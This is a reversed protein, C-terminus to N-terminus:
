ATSANETKKDTKVEKKESPKEGNDKGKDKGKDKYDTVYWGNGKLHFSNLSMLRRLSGKCYSCTELPEDTIKQMVEIIRDCKTCQYEYIPM